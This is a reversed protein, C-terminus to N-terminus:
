EGLLSRVEKMIIDATEQGLHETFHDHARVLADARVASPLKLFLGRFERLFERQAERGIKGLESQELPSLAEIEARSLNALELLEPYKEYHAETLKEIQLGIEAIHAEEAAAADFASESLVPDESLETLFVDGGNSFTDPEYDHDDAADLDEDYSGAAASTSTTHAPVPQFAPEPQVSPSESREPVVYIREPVPEATHQHYLYIGGALLPVCLVGLLVSGKTYKAMKPFM